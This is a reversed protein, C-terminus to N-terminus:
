NDLGLEFCHQTDTVAQLGTIIVLPTKRSIFEKTIVGRKEHFARQIVMYLQNM